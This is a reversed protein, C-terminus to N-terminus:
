SEPEARTMAPGPIDHTWAAALVFPAVFPVPLQWQALRFLEAWSEHRPKSESDPVPM